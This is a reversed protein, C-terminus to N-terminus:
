LDLLLSLTRYVSAPFTHRMVIWASAGDYLLLLQEALVDPESVEMLEAQQKFYEYLKTKFETVVKIGPANTSRLEISTNMFICGYFDPKEAMPEVMDFVHVIRDKPNDSKSDTCAAFWADGLLSMAAVVLAEKTEFHVYLTRKSVNAAECIQAVGTANIGHSYFLKAATSVIRDRPKEKASAKM